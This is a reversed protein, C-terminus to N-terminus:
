RQEAALDTAYRGMFGAIYPAFSRWCEMGFHNEGTRMLIIPANEFITRTCKGVPFADISLDLPCGINVAEKFKEGMIGFCVNRHSVDVISVTFSKELKAFATELKSKNKPDAIIFWEDPGLCMSFMDPKMNSAGIKRPLKIGAMKEIATLDTKAARINYRVREPLLMVKLADSQLSEPIELGQDFTIDSSM